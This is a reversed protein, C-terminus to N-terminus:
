FVFSVLRQLPVACLACDAARAPVGCARCDASKYGRPHRSGCVNQARRWPLHLPRLDPPLARPHRGHPHRLHPHRAHSPRQIIRRSQHTPLHPHTTPPPHLHPFQPPRRCNTLNSYFSHPTFTGLAMTLNVYFRLVDILECLISSILNIPLPLPVERIPAVM